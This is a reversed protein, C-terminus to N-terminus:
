GQPKVGPRSVAMMEGELGDVPRNGPWPTTQGQGAIQLLSAEYRDICFSEHKSRVLAMRGPCPPEAALSWPGTGDLAKWLAKPLSGPLAFATQVPARVLAAAGVGLALSSVLKRNLQLRRATSLFSV